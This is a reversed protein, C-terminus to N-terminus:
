LRYAVATGEARNPSTMPVKGVQSLKEGTIESLIKDVEEDAELEDEDEADGLDLADTMMEDVIGAKTMEMQMMTMTRTLEPLKVLTNVEKMVLTSKKLTGTIKLTALQEGLQMNLSSLMAKSSEMRGRQKKARVLEKALFRCNKAEGRKALARIQNKTKTEGQSLTGIQREIGRTERRLESQWKRVKDEPAQKWFLGKITDM